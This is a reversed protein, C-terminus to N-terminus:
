CGKYADDGCRCARCEAAVLKMRLDSLAIEMAELERNKFEVKRTLEVCVNELFTYQGRLEEFQREITEHDLTM